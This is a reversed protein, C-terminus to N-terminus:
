DALAAGGQSDLAAVPETNEINVNETMFLYSKALQIFAEKSSKFDKETRSSLVAIAIGSEEEYYCLWEYNGWQDGTYEWIQGEKNDTTSINKIFEAKVNQSGNKKFTTLNYQILDEINKIVEDKTAWNMYMIANASQWTEGEPYFVAHLGQRVGSKNDLIWGDPECIMFSHNDGYVLGCNGEENEDCFIDSSFCLIVILLFYIFLVQKM